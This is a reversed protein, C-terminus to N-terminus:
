KTLIQYFKKFKTAIVHIAKYEYFRVPQTLSVQTDELSRWVQLGTGMAPGM